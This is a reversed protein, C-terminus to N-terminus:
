FQRYSALPLGHEQVYQNWHDVVDKNEEYWRDGKAKAVADILGRECAESLDIGLRSADDVLDARLSLEVGSRTLPKPEPRTLM